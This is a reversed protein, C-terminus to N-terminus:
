GVIRWTERRASHGVAAAPVDEPIGLDRLTGEILRAIRERNRAAIATAPLKRLGKAYRPYRSPDRLAGGIYHLLVRAHERHFAWLTEGRISWRFLADAPWRLRHKGVHHCADCLVVGDRYLQYGAGRNPAQWAVVSPFRERVRWGSWPKLAAAEDDPIAERRASSIFEFPEEWRAPGECRPCRIELPADWPFDGRWSLSAM